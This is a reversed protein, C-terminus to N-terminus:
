DRNTTNIPPYTAETLIDTILQLLVPVTQGWERGKGKFVGGRRKVKFVVGKGEGQVKFVGGKGKWRSSM